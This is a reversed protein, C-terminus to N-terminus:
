ENKIKKPPKTMKENRTFLGIFEKEDGEKEKKEYFYHYIFLATSIVIAIVAVVALISGMTMLIIDLAKSLMSPEKIKEATGIGFDMTSIETEPMTQAQEMVDQNFLGFLLQFIKKIWASLTSALNSTNFRSFGILIIGIITVYIISIGVNVKKLRNTDMKTSTGRNFIFVDAQQLNNYLIKLLILGLFTWYITQVAIENQLYCNVVFLIALIVFHFIGPAELMEFDPVLRLLLSFVILIMFVVFIGVHFTLQMLVLYGVTACLLHGLILLYFKTSKKRLLYLGVIVFSILLLYIRSTSQNSIRLVSDTIVYTFVIQTMVEIINMM